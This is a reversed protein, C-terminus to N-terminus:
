VSICMEREALEALWATDQARILEARLFGDQFKSKQIGGM